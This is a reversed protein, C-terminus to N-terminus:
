GTAHRGQAVCARIFRDQADTGVGDFDPDDIGYRAALAQRADPYPVLLQVRALQFGCDAMATGGKRWFSGFLMRQRQRQEACASREQAALDPTQPAPDATVAGAMVAKKCWKSDESKRWVGVAFLGGVMVGLTVVVTLASSLSRRLM